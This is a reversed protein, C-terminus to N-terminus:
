STINKGARVKMAMDFACGYLSTFVRSLTTGIYGIRQRWFPKRKKWIIRRNKKKQRFKSAALRNRELFKRRKAEEKAPTLQRKGKRQRRKKPATTGSDESKSEAECTGMFIRGPRGTIDKDGGASSSRHSV